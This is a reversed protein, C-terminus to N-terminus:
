NATCDKCHPQVGNPVEIFQFHASCLEHRHPTWAGPPCHQCPLNYMRHTKQNQLPKLLHKATAVDYHLVAAIFGLLPSALWCFWVCFHPSCPHPFNLFFIFLFYPNIFHYSFWSSLQKVPLCAFNSNPAAPTLLCLSTKHPPYNLSWLGRHEKLLFFWKQQISMATQLSFQMKVKPPSLM